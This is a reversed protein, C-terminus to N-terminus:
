ATARRPLHFIWLTGDTRRLGRIRGTRRQTPIEGLRSREAARRAIEQQRILALQHDLHSM